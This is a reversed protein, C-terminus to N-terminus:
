RFFPCIVRWPLGDSTERADGSSHLTQSLLFVVAESEQLGSPRTSTWPRVALSLHVNSLSTVLILICHFPGLLPLLSSTLYLFTVTETMVLSFFNTSYYWLISLANCINSGVTSYHIFNFCLTIIHSNFTSFFQGNSMIRSTAENYMFYNTPM